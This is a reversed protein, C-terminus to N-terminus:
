LMLAIQSKGRPFLNPDCPPPPPPPPSPFAEFPPRYCICLQLQSISKM